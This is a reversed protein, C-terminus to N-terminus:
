AFAHLNGIVRQVARIAKDITPRCVRNRRALEARPVGVYKHLVYLTVYDDRFIKRTGWRLTGYDPATGHVQKHKENESHTVWALNEPKNNLCNGDLHAVEMGVPPLGHFAMCVFRHVPSKPGEAGLQVYRYGFGALWPKLVRAQLRCAYSRGRGDSKLIVRDVSRISGDNGAEYGPLDPIPRYEIQLSTMSNWFLFGAPLVLSLAPKKTNTLHPALGSPM